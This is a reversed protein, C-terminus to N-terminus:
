AFFARERLGHYAFGSLAICWIQGAVFSFCCARAFWFPLAVFVTSPIYSFLQRIIALPTYRAQRGHFRLCAAFAVIMYVGRGM